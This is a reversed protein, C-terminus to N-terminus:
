HPPPLISNMHLMLTECVCVRICESVGFGPLPMQPDSVEPMPAQNTPAHPRYATRPLFLSCNIQIETRPETITWM